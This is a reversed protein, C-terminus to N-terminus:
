AGGSTGPLFIWLNFHGVTGFGLREYVPRGLDSAQLVAPLAPDTTAARASIAAGYGRGRAEPLTAVLYVGVVGDRVYAIACTVARGAVYGLWLRYDNGLVATTLFVGPRYPQLEPVPYGEIFVREFDGLTAADTVEWIALEPPAPPCPAPPRVMLPPQGAFIGGLPQLDPTPWASWIAWPRGGAAAYFAKLRALLAPADADALPQLLTASNPLPHPLGTNAAWFAAERLTPHGQAEAPALWSGALNRVAPTIWDAAPTAAGQNNAAPVTADSM